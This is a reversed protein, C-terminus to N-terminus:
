INVRILKIYFTYKLLNIINENKIYIFKKFYLDYTNILYFYKETKLFIFWYNFHQISLIEFFFELFIPSNINYNFLILYLLLFFVNQNFHSKFSDFLFWKFDSKKNSIRINLFYSKFAILFINLIIINKM